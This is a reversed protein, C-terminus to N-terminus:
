HWPLITVGCDKSGALLWEFARTVNGPLAAAADASLLQEHWEVALVDLRCLSQAHTLLVHRLVDYEHGEIDM